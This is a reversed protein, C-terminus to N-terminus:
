ALPPPPADRTGRIAPSTVAPEARTLLEGVPVGRQALRRAYATAAPPADAQRSDVQYGIIHALTTM